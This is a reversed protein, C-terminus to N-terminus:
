HQRFVSWCCWKLMCKPRRDRHHALNERPRPTKKNQKLSWFCREADAMNMPPPTTILIKLLTVAESFVVELNSQMFLQCLDVAGYCSKFEEKRYILSLDTKLKSGNAKLTNSLCKWSIVDQLRSTLGAGRCCPPVSMTTQSPSASRPTDWHPVFLLISFVIHM